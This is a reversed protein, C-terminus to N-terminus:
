YKDILYNKLLSLKSHPPINVDSKNSCNTQPINSYVLFSSFGPIDSIVASQVATQLRCIDYVPKKGASTMRSERFPKQTFSVVVRYLLWFDILPIQRTSPFFRHIVNASQLSCIGSMSKQSNYLTTTENM